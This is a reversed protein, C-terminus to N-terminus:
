SARSRGLAAPASGVTRTPSDPTILDPHAEELGSLERVLADYDADSIVPDDLEHYRRNHFEIARRLWEIRDEPAADGPPPPPGPDPGVDM